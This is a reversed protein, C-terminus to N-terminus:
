NMTSGGKTLFLNSFFTWNLFNTKLSKDKRELYIQKIGHLFLQKFLIFLWGMKAFNNICAFQKAQWLINQKFEKNPYSLVFCKEWVFLIFVYVNSIIIM